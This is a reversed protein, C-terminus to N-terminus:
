PDRRIGRGEVRDLRDDRLEHHESALLDFLLRDYPRGDIYHCQRQRGIFRFRLREVLRLSPNRDVVWTNVTHLELNRFALTLFKSGAFSAYGRSRFSKEGTTGWLTGTRFTRSVNNLGAIGIPVDDRDSTYVRMFHTEQQAMIKLLMPTVLQVGNGFSLWQYNEKRALWSAALEIIEPTNLPLLKMRVGDLV